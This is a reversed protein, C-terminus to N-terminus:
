PVTPFNKKLFEAEELLMDEHIDRFYRRELLGLGYEDPQNEDGRVDDATKEPARKCVKSFGSWMTSHATTGLYM